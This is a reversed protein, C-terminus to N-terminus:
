SVVVFAFAAATVLMHTQGGTELPETNKDVFTQLRVKTVAPPRLSVM